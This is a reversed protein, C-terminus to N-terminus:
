WQEAGHCYNSGCSSGHYAVRGQITQAPDGEFDTTALNGFHDPSVDHCGTCALRRHTRHEGSTASNYEGTSTTHCSTCQTGVDLSGSSWNPTTQGGHCRTTGCTQNASDYDAIGSQADYTPPISVSATNAGTFHADTNTGANQHCIECQGTVGPLANHVAHSGGRNPFQDGAPPQGNPAQHHCSACDTLGLPSGAAHCDTCAPGIGGGAPGNLDTGHCLACTTGMLNATKHSTAAPGTWLPTPHASQTAHCTECGNPLNSVAVNFRPNDGVGADAPTAHCPVCGALNDKAAAGHLRPDTYPIEHAGAGPGASHCGTTSGDANTFTSTFCSPADNRPQPGGVTVQHCLTCSNGIAEWSVAQHSAHYAPTTDDTGQWCTPHAGAAEHCSSTSCDATASDYQFSSTLTGGDFQDRASGHCGSCRNQGKLAEAGHLAPDIFPMPHLRIPEGDPHCTFCNGAHEKGNLDSGHCSKCDEPDAKAQAAHSLLYSQEHVQGAPPAESNAKACALLAVPLIWILTLRTLHRCMM